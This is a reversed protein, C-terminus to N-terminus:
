RYTLVPCPAGAMIRYASSSRLHIGPMFANRIGMAILSTKKARATRLVTEVTEGFGIICEVECGKLNKEFDHAMTAAIPETLTKADPNAAVEEPLVHLVTVAAGFEVAMERVYPLIKRSEPSLDTPILIREFKVGAAPALGPGVTLVPCTAVRCMEEVVSGLLLKRLGTRGHTGAVILDIDNEGIAHLLEDEILGSALVVKPNFRALEPLRALKTLDESAHKREAEYLYPAAEPAGAVLPNPAIIHCLHVSSGLKAALSTVYPLAHM